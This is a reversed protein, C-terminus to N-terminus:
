AAVRTRVGLRRRARSPRRSTGGGPTLRCSCMRRRSATLRVGGLRVGAASMVAAAPRAHLGGVGSDEFGSGPRRALSGAAAYASGDIQQEMDARAAGAGHVPCTWEGDLSVIRVNRARSGACSSRPRRRRRPPHRSPARSSRRLVTGSHTSSRCRTPERRLRRLGALRGYRVCVVEWGGAQARRAAVVEPSAALPAIRQARAAGRVLQLTRDRVTSAEEYRQQAALLKMRRRLAGVVSRADGAIMATAEAVIAAYQEVTQAGSCPAGCRGLEALLCEASKVRVSLRRTCQRLPVVEHVAAVAAEAAQHSGFPGVYRAGDQRVERVMSLRPFPEVTLKLWPAREPFRSRRNYRPKHAAILRLERVQAELRTACVVPTVTPPSGVM